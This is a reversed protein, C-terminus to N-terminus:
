LSNNASQSFSVLPSKVTPFKYSHTSNGAPSPPSLPQSPGADLWPSKSSPYPAEAPVSVAKLSSKKKKITKFTKNKETINITGWYRPYWSGGHRLACM